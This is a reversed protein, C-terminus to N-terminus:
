FTDVSKLLVEWYLINRSHAQRNTGVGTAVHQCISLCVRQIKNVINLQSRALSSEFFLSLELYYTYKIDYM